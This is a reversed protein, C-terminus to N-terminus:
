KEPIEIIIKNGEVVLHLEQGREISFAEAIEKPIAIRYSGSNYIVKRKWIVKPTESM